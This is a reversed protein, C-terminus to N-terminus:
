TEYNETKIDNLGLEENQEYSRDYQTIRLADDPKNDDRM